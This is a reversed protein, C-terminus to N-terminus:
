GRQLILLTHVAQSTLARRRSVHLVRAAANMITEKDKVTSQQTKEIAVLDNRENTWTGDAPREGSYVSDNLTKLAEQISQLATIADNYESRAAKFESSDRTLIDNPM